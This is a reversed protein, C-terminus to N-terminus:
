QLIREITKTTEIGYHLTIFDKLSGFFMNKGARLEAELRVSDLRIEKNMLHYRSFVDLIDIGLKRYLFDIMFLKNVRLYVMYDCEFVDYQCGDIQVLRKIKNLKTDRPANETSKLMFKM